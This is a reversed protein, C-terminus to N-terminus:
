IVGDWMIFELWTLESAENWTLGKNSEWTNFALTYKIGLHAPFIVEIAQKLGDLNNPIGNGSFVIEYIGVIGTEYIDIQGNGYANAVNKITEETTQDFSARNRSFIQERRQDYSLSPITKIGLDRESLPLTEIATDLFINREVVTLQQETHRFERDYSNLIQNFTRSKREYLPLYKIMETKYDRESTVVSTIMETRTEMVTSSRVGRVGQVQMEALTESASSANHIIVPTFDLETETEMLAFRFCEWQHVSLDGWAHVVVKEWQSEQVAQM